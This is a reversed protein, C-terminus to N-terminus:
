NKENNDNEKILVGHVVLRRNGGGACTSLTIIKDGYEITDNTNFNSRGRIMNIFVDFYDKNEFNTVLYDTTYDVKYAAFIKFQYSNNETDYNIIMNDKNKRWKSNLVNKLSGFMIGSGSSYHGYIITNDDFEKANNRYDMFIWGVTKKQNYFDHKLYYINDKHQVVPYSIDTNKITIYGVTENNTKKLNSFIKEFSYKKLLKEKESITDKKENKIQEDIKKNEEEILTNKKELEELEKNVNDDAAYSSNNLESNLMAVSINEVYDYSKIIVLSVVSIYICMTTILRLNNFTLQKFLNNKLFSDSYLIRFECTYEEKCKKNLEKLWAFNTTIFNGKDYGQHLFVIINRSEDHKVLDIIASILDKSFLYINISKLNYNIRLFEKVDEVLGPYYEKIDLTKRYYLTEYDFSDQQLMFRESVKNHNYLNVSVGKDVFKKKIFNPMFYCDIQKISKIELFMEYDELSMTSPIDLKLYQIRLGEILYCVYKFTVMKKIILTDLYGDNYKILLNCIKGNNRKFYNLTYYYSNNNFINKNLLKKEESNITRYDYKITSGIITIVIYEKM